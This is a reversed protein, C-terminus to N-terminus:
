QTQTPHQSEFHAKIRNFDQAIADASHPASFVAAYQGDPNMLLISASHAVNYNEDEDNIDRSSMIGLGQSLQLIADLEGTLGIFESNFYHVFGAMEEPTDRAPDVTVFLFRAEGNEGLKYATSNMISLTTPCIDPCHTYGFFMFHWQGLLDSNNFTNGNHDIVSFPPLAMPTPFWTAVQTQPTEPKGPTSWQLYALVGAIVLGTVLILATTRAPKESQTMRM